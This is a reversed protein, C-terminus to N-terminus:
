LVEVREVDFAAGRTTASFPLQIEDVYVAVTPAASLTTEYFGVGRLTYVPTNFPSPQVTLGPVIKGLDTPSGIGRTILADGSEATISLGVDLINQDRKNATVIIIDPDNAVPGDTAAEQAFAPVTAAGLMALSCGSLIVFRASKM